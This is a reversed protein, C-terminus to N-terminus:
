RGLGLERSEFIWQLTVESMEGNICSQRGKCVSMADPRAERILSENGLWVRLQKPVVGHLGAISKLSQGNLRRAKVDEIIDLKQKNTIARRRPMIAIHVFFQSLNPLRPM